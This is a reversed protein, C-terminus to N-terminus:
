SEIRSILDSVHLLTARVHGTSKANPYAGHFFRDDSVIEDVYPLASVLAFKDILSNRGAGTKKMGWQYRSIATELAIAPITAPDMDRIYDMLLDNSLVLGSPTERPLAVAALAVQANRTMQPSIKGSRHHARLRILQRGANTFAEELADGPKLRQKRWLEVFKAIDGQFPLAGRKRKIEFSHLLGRFDVIRSSREFPIRLYRFINESVDFRVIDFRELIWLPRISEMFVALEKSNTESDGYSAEILSWWSLVLTTGARIFEDLKARFHLRRARRGLAILANQDLYLLPM